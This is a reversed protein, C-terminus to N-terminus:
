KSEGKILAILRAYREEALLIDVQGAKRSDIMYQRHFEILKIIREREFLQGAEFPDRAKVQAPSKRSGKEDFLWEMRNTARAMRSRQEEEVEVYCQCGEAGCAPCGTYNEDNEISM